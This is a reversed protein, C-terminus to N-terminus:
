KPLFWGFNCSFDTNKQPNFNDLRFCIGGTASAPRGDIM